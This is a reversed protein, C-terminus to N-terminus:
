YSSLALKNNCYDLLETTMGHIEATCESETLVRNAMVKSPKVFTEHMPQVFNNFQLEVSEATRGRSSLDRKLRRTRRTAEDCEIYIKHDMAETLETSSAFILTGEVFVFERAHILDSDVIRKHSAFDYRPVKVSLGKALDRLHGSLMSFDIASPHDFNITKPDEGNQVGFYYADQEIVVARDSGLAKLMTQVFLTKGSCSGGAVGIIKVSSM